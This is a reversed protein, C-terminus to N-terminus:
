TKDHPLLDLVSFTDRILNRLLAIYNFPLRITRGNSVYTFNGTELAGMIREKFAFIDEGPSIYEFTSKWTEFDDPSYCFVAVDVFLGAIIKRLNKENPINLGLECRHLTSKSIDASLYLDVMSQKNIERLYKIREGIYNKSEGAAAADMQKKRLIKLNKEGNAIWEAQQKEYQEHHLVAEDSLATIEDINAASKDIYFLDEAPSPGNDPTLSLSGKENSKAM